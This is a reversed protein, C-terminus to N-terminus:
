AFAIFFALNEKTKVDDCTIMLYMYTVLEFVYVLPGHAM